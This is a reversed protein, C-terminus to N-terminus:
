SGYGELNRLWRELNALYLMRVTGNAQRCWSRRTGELVEQRVLGRRGLARVLEELLAPVAPNEMLTAVPIGFGRKGGGPTPLDQYEGALQRLLWKQTRGRLKFRQPLNFCHAVWRIDLYPFRGEISRQMLFRDSTHNHHTGIQIRLDLYSFQRVPDWGPGAVYEFSDRVPALPDYDKDVLEPVFVAEDFGWISGGFARAYAAPLDPAQL